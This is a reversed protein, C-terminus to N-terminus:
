DLSFAEHFATQTGGGEVPGGGSVYIWDGIAAAGLGHRPTIMPAHQEWRDRGPDYSEVAGFVRRTGEGGFCFIRNRYLVAGHGSRPTPMPARDEWRDTGPDYVLHLPTNFDYTDKRGGIAHLKGAVEVAGIHDRQGQMPRLIDWMDTAPDYVEHIELSRADRGGVAHIRGGLAVVSIAGRPSSLPACKSWRDFAADYAFVQSHPGKNQEIFGGVAYVRGNLAAVGVHNAGLPLPALDTWANSRPDYVQHYTRNPAQEGYGGIVHMRGALATAWAMESRPLPLDARKVWRGQQRAKPANSYFFRQGPIGDPPGTANPDKLNSFMAGHSHQALAPGSAALAAGGALLSRRSLPM